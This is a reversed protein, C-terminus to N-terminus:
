DNIEAFQGIGIIIQWNQFIDICLGFNQYYGIKFKTKQPYWRILIRKGIPYDKIFDKKM